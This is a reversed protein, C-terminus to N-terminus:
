AIFACAPLVVNIATYVTGVTVLTTRDLAKSLEKDGIVHWIYMSVAATLLCVFITFLGLFSVYEVLGFQGSSPLLSAVLYSNAVAGFYSGVPMSVRPGSESARIALSTLTLLMGAFLGIFSKVYMGMSSRKVNLGVALETFSTRLGPAVAPDGYGTKYTHTKVVTAFSGINYGPVKLRSSYKSETDAVYRLKTADRSGDEVYLNLMHDDLPVRTTNFFKIVKASVRYRQYNVGDAGYREDLLEKKEIKADVLQFTKGPDLARDGTWRFWIFFTTTWFSDRISFNDINDLYVGVHVPVFNGKAPLADPATRGPEVQDASMRLMHGRTSALKEDRVVSLALYGILLYVVSILAFWAWLYKHKQSEVSKWFM